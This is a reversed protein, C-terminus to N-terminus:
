GPLACCPVIRGRHWSRRLGTSADVLQRPDVSFETPGFGLTTDDSYEGGGRRGHEHSLTALQSFLM